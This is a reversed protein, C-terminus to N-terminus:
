VYIGVMENLMYKIEEEINKGIELGEIYKIKQNFLTKFVKIEDISMIAENKYCEICVIGGSYTDFTKFNKERGCYVCSSFNLIVGELILAKVIFYNLYNNMNHSMSILELVKEFDDYVSQDFNMLKILKVIKYLVESAQLNFYNVYEYSLAEFEKLKLVDNRLTGKLRVKLFINNLVHYKSKPSRYSPGFVSVIGQNTLLHIIAGREKYKTSSIVYGELINSPM